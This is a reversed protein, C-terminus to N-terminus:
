KVKRISSPGSWEFMKIPGSFSYLSLKGSYFLMTSIIDLLCELQPITLIPKGTSQISGEHEIATQCSEFIVLPVDELGQQTHLDVAFQRGSTISLNEELLFCDPKFTQIIQLAQLCDRVLILVYLKKHLTMEVFTLEEPMTNQIVLIYITM